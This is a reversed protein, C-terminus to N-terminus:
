EKSKNKLLNLVTKIYTWVNHTNKEKYKSRMAKRRLKNIPIFSHTNGKINLPLDNETILQKEIHDFDETPMYQAYTHENM